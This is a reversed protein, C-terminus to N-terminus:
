MGGGSMMGGSMMGGSMMGGSMTDGTLSGGAQTLLNGLETLGSDGGAAATTGQGLSVLLSGVQAGDISDAQLATKLEGLQSAISQVAPDSSGGLQAEWGEINAVAADVPIATLGGKLTDITGQVTPADSQALAFVASLALIAFLVFKKM